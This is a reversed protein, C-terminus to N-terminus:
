QGLEPYTRPVAQSEAKSATEIFRRSHRAPPGFAGHAFTKQNKAGIM